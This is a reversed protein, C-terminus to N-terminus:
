SSRHLIHGGYDATLEFHCGRIGHGTIRLGSKVDKSHFYKFRVKFLDEDPKVLGFLNWLNKRYEEMGLFEVLQDCLPCGTSAERRLM